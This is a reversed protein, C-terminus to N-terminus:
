SDAHADQESLGALGRAEHEHMVTEMRVIKNARFTFLMFHPAAGEIGSTRGKGHQVVRVLVTDGVPEIQKAEVTWREWQALFDRMYSRIGDLGLFVGFAPFDPSVVFVVNQDLAEAGATFDGIAWADFLARVIEVNEQSM